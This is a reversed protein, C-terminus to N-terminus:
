DKPKSTFYNTSEHEASPTSRDSSEQVGTALSVGHVRELHVKYNDHRYFLKGCVRCRINYRGECKRRHRTMTAPHKYRAGCNRCAFPLHAAMSSLPAPSRFGSWAHFGAFLWCVSMFWRRVDCIRNRGVRCVYV